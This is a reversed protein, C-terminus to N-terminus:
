VTSDQRDVESSSRRSCLCHYSVGDPFCRCTRCDVCMRLNKKVEIFTPRPRQILNFAIALKESHGCLVSEVTEGEALPRTICSPDFEHGNEKLEATVCDLEAYIESSRPHTRDHARFEQLCVSLMTHVLADQGVHKVVTENNVDTWSVGPTVKSGFKKIRHARVEQAQQQNGTSILTNSLLISASILKSKQDPFLAQMRNYLRQSLASQRHTRAGSLLTM